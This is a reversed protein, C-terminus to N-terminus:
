LISIVFTENRAMVGPWAMWLAVAVSRLLFGPREQLSRSGLFLYVEKM